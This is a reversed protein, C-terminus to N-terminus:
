ERYDHRGRKLCFSRNRESFFDDEGLYEGRWPKGGFKWFRAALSTKDTIQRWIKGGGLRTPPM